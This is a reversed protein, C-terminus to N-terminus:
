KTERYGAKAVSQMYRDWFDAPFNWLRGIERLRDASWNPDLELCSNWHKRAADLEGLEAYVAVFKQQNEVIGPNPHQELFELAARYQGRRFHDYFEASHYWGGAGAANLDHAKRVLALGREWQGSVTYLFGLEGLLRADNPSTELAARAERDFAALDHDYFHAFAATRHALPDSPDLRLAEPANRKLESPPAPTAEWGLIWGLLMLYAYEQRARAYTPDLAVARELHRKAQPYGAKTWWGELMTGLLVHDYAQLQSESRRAAAQRDALPIAGYTGSGITAAIREAIERQVAFIDQTQRSYREAWVHAGSSADILQATVLLQTGTRRVSGELVYRVGLSRAVAPVEVTRGKYQQTTNRALVHLERFRALETIVDETLGDSFYEQGPDGSLNVFPLVAIRTGVPPALVPDLTPAPTTAMPAAFYWVAAAAIAALVGAGLARKGIGLRPRRTSGTDAILRYVRVPKAINKVSHEGKFEFAAPLKGEIQDFVTGSICLGGPECMAELRAAINVGDGYLARDEEIVDGLNIGIRIRMRRSEPLPANREALAQQIEQAAAVAEVASGFEALVADGPADVVRGAHSAVRERIVERSANLADVTAREDEAMLRSYGAVDASLIAALKRHSSM